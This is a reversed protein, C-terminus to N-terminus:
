IFSLKIEWFLLLLMTFYYTFCIFTGSLKLIHMLLLNPNLLARVTTHSMDSVSMRHALRGQAMPDKDNRCGRRVAKLDWVRHNLRCDLGIKPPGEGM